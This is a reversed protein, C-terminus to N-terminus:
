FTRTCHPCAITAATPSKSARSKKDQRRQEATDIRNAEHSKAGSRVSARWKPRDM